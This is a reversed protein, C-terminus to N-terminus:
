LSLYNLALVTKSDYIDEPTFSSFTVVWEFTPYSINRELAFNIDFNLCNKKSPNYKKEIKVPIPVHILV